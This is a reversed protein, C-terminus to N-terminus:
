RQFKLTMDPMYERITTFPEDIFRQEDALMKELVSREVIGYPKVVGMPYHIESSLVGSQVEGIDLGDLIFTYEGIVAGNETVQMGVRNNKGSFYHNLMGFIHPHKQTLSNVVRRRMPVLKEKMLLDLETM